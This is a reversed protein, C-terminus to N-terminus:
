GEPKDHAYNYTSRVSAHGNFSVAFVGDQPDNRTAPEGADIAQSSDEGQQDEFGDLIRDFSEESTNVPEDEFGEIVRDLDEEEAGAFAPFASQALVLCLSAFVIIPLAKVTKM